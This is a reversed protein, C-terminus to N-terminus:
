IRYTSELSLDIWLATSMVNIQHEFKYNNNKAVMNKTHALRIQQTWLDYIEGSDRSM